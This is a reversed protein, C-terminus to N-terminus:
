IQNLWNAVICSNWILLCLCWVICSLLNYSKFIIRHLMEKWLNFNSIATYIHKYIYIYNDTIIKANGVASLLLMMFHVAQVEGGLQKSRRWAKDWLCDSRRCRGLLCFSWSRGDRRPDPRRVWAESFLRLPGDSWLALWLSFSGAEPWQGPSRRSWFRSHTRLHSRQLGPHFKSLKEIGVSTRKQSWALGHKIEMAM